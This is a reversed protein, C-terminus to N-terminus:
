KRVTGYSFGQWRKIEKGQPTVEVAFSNGTVLTNGNSLRYADAPNPINYSWVIKKQPNVEIVRNSGLEAILTNGNALREIGYPSKANAYEWVVKGKPDVEKVSNNMIAVLTNGNPLRQVDSCSSPTKYEWVVKKERTIEFARSGSYDAVIFNGNPLPEANLCNCNYEWTRKGQRNVVLLKNESYASILVDGGPLKEAAWVGQANHSWVEKGSPDYETVKNQYGYAILVNGNLNGRGGSAVHLPFHLKASNGKGDVWERWAKVGERRGSKDAYPSYEHYTRTLLRLTQCARTRVALSESDLLEVLPGLCGRDGVNAIAMAAALKLEPDKSKLLPYLEKVGEAGLSVALGPLLIRKTAPLADKVAKRLRDAHRAQAVKMLEQSLLQRTIDDPCLAVSEILVDVSGKWKHKGITRILSQLVGSVEGRRARLIESARAATELDENEAAKNLLEAPFYPMSMLAETADERQKWQESGLQEILRRAKRNQDETPHMQRLYAFVAKGTLEVGRRRVAIEYYELRANPDNADEIAETSADDALSWSPLFVLGGALLASSALLLMAQAFGLSGGPRGTTTSGHHDNM